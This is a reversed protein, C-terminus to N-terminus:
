VSEILYVLSIKSISYTTAAMVGVQLLIQPRHTLISPISNGFYGRFFM